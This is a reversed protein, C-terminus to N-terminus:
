HRTIRERVVARYRTRAIEVDGRSTTRTKKKFRHLMYVAEEFKAVRMVEFWANPCDIRIENAGPGIEPFHDGTMPSKAVSCSERNTARRSERRKPFSGCTTSRYGRWGIPKDM